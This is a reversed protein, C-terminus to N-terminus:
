IGLETVLSFDPVHTIIFGRKQYKLCRIITATVARYWKSLIVGDVFIADSVACKIQVYPTVSGRKTVIGKFDYTYLNTGDYFNKLFTLDYTSVVFQGFEFTSFSKAPYSVTIIQIKRRAENQYNVVSLINSNFRYFVQESHFYSDTLQPIPDENCLKYGSKIILDLLSSWDASESVYLDCDSEVIVSDIGGYFCQAVLSGAVIAGCLTIAKTFEEINLMFFKNVIQKLNLIAIIRLTKSNYHEYLKKDVSRISNIDDIRTLYKNLVLSPIDDDLLNVSNHEKACVVSSTQVSINSTSTLLECDRQEILYAFYLERYIIDFFSNRIFSGVTRIKDVFFVKPSSLTTISEIKYLLKIIPLLNEFAKKIISADVTYRDIVRQVLMLLENTIFYSHYIKKFTAIDNCSRDMQRLISMNSRRELNYSIKPNTSIIWKSIQLEISKTSCDNSILNEYYTLITNFYNMLDISIVFTGNIIQFESM